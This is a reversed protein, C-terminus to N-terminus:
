KIKVRKHLLQHIKIVESFITLNRIPTLLLYILFEKIQKWKRNKELAFRFERTNNFREESYLNLAKNIANLFNNHFCPLNKSTLSVYPDPEGKEIAQERTKVNIPYSGTLIKYILVAVSYVDTSKNIEPPYNLSLQELAASEPSATNLYKGTKKDYLIASAGFDIILPTLDKKILINEIKIDQHYIDYFHIHELTLLIEKLLKILLQPSNLQKLHSQLPITEIYDTLIYSTNNINEYYSIFTIIGPHKTHTVQKLNNAEQKFILKLNSYENNKWPTLTNKLSIESNKQRKVFEHPFFEKLVFHKKTDSNDQVLYVFSFSGEGLLKIIKYKNLIYSGVNLIRTDIELM